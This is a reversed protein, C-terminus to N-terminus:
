SHRVCTRITLGTRSILSASQTSRPGRSARWGARVPWSALSREMSCSTVTRTGAIPWISICKRYDRFFLLKKFSLGTTSDWHINFLMGQSMTYLNGKCIYVQTRDSFVCRLTMTNQKRTNWRIKSLLVIPSHCYIIIFSFKACCDRAPWPRRKISAEFDCESLSCETPSGQIFSWGTASMEVQCCVVSVLSLVDTGTAHNSCMIGAFTRGFVWSKSRAAVPIPKYLPNRSCIRTSCRCHSSYSFWMVIM